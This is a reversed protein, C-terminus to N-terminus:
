GRTAQQSAAGSTLPTRGALAAVARVVAAPKLPKGVRIQATDSSADGGRSLILDVTSDRVIVDAARTAAPSEDGRQTVRAGSTELMTTLTEGEAVAGIVIVDVDGLLPALADHSPDIELEPLTVTFTAGKGPGDSHVTVTGDHLDVMQQVVALGIGLGGHVRALGDKGQKFPEFVFPLMAPEIGAGTDSVSIVARGSSKSVSLTMRGGQPTFQIANNLLNAVVQQLRGHDGAVFVPETKAELAIGKNRAAVGASEIAEASVVSLDVVRIHLELKGKAFRSVDLLDNILQAQVRTNRELSDLARARAAETLSTQRLQFIWGMLANLPTRLEHSLTAIFDDKLQNAHEAEARAQQERALAEALSQEARRVRLLAQATAVLVGPEVPEPLYADAGANLGQVRDHDGVATSSVHLIQVSPPGPQLERLKRSVEFGSIDPLNVDLVVLDIPDTRMIEITEHGTAAEQVTFGARRLTQVKVFRGADQDDVVLVRAHTQTV